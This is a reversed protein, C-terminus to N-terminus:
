KSDTTLINRNDGKQNTNKRNDNTRCAHQNKHTTENFILRAM